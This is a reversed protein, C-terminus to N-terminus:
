QCSLLHVKESLFKVRQFQEAEVRNKDVVRDELKVMLHIKEKDEEAHDKNKRHIVEVFFSDDTFVVAFKNSLITPKMATPM